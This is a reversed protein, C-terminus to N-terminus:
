LRAGITPNALRTNLAITNRDPSATLANMSNQVRKPAPMALAFVSGTCPENSASM